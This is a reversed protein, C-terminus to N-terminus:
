QYTKLHESKIDFAQLRFQRRFNERLERTGLLLLLRADEPTGRKDGASVRHARRIEQDRIATVGPRRQNDRASERPHPVYQVNENGFYVKVCRLYELDVGHRWTAMKLWANGSPFSSTARGPLSRALSRLHRYDTKVLHDARRSTSISCLSSFMVSGVERLDWRGISAASRCFWYACSRIVTAIHGVRSPASENAKCRSHASCQNRTRRDRRRSHLLGQRITNGLHRMFAKTTPGYHGLFLNDVDGVSCAISARVGCADFTCIAAM